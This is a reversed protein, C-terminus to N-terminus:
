DHLQLTPPLRYAALLGDLGTPSGCLAISKGYSSRATSILAVLMALGASDLRSVGDLDITHAHALAANLRPWLQAVTSVVLEGTLAIMDSTQHIGLEAVMSPKRLRILAVM